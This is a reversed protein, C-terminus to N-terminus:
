NCYFITTTISDGSVLADTATKIYIDKEATTQAGAVAASPGTIQSGAATFAAFDGLADEDGSYGISGSWTIAAPTSVVCAIPTSNAPLKGVYVFSGADGTDSAGATFTDTIAKVNGGGEQSPIFDGMSPSNDITTYNTGYYSATAM